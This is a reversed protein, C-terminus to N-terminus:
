RNLEIVIVPRTTIDIRDLRDLDSRLIAIDIYPKGVVAVIRLGM